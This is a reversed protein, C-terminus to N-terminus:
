KNRGRGSKITLNLIRKRVVEFWSSMMQFFFNRQYDSSALITPSSSITIIHTAAHQCFTSECRKIKVKNVKVKDCRWNWTKEIKDVKCLTSFPGFSTPFISFYERFIFFYERLQFWKYKEFNLGNKKVKKWVTSAGDNKLKEM